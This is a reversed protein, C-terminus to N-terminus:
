RTRGAHAATAIDALPQDDRRHGCALRPRVHEAHHAPVLGGHGPRTTTSRPRTRARSSANRSAGGHGPWGCWNPSAPRPPPTASTSPTSATASRAAYWCATAGASASGPGTMCGTAKPAPGPRTANGAPPRCAAAVQDARGAGAGVRFDRRVALVYRIGHPELWARLAPDQGYAEDATVWGFPTQADVARGLMRRALEPKTAFGVQDPVGARRCRHPDESWSRPVYLERDLLTRGFPSAYSVFVGIQCNDTRGLTGSYQRQVGVSHPTDSKIFWDRTSIGLWPRPATM